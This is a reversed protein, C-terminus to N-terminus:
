SYWEVYNTVCLEELVVKLRLPVSLHLLEKVLKHFRSLWGVDEKEVSCKKGKEERVILFTIPLLSWIRREIV